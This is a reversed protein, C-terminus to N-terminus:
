IKNVRDRESLLANICRDKIISFYCCPSRGPPDPSVERTKDGYLQPLHLPNLPNCGRSQSTLFAKGHLKQWYIDMSGWWGGWFFNWILKMTQSKLGRGRKGIINRPPDHVVFGCMECNWLLCKWFTRTYCVGGLGWLSEHVSIARGKMFHQMQEKYGGRGGGGVRGGVQVQASPTSSCYDPWLHLTLKDVSKFLYFVSINLHFLFSNGKGQISSPLNWFIVARVLKSSIGAFNLINTAFNIVM